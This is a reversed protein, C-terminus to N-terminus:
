KQSPAPRLYTTLGASVANAIQARTEPQSLAIEEDRNVIMGAELLVAPSRATALVVLDDFYHVGNSRDAFPKNEGPIPDAHYLSPEFGHRRLQEGIASACRLSMGPQTNKRSVFLSFGTFRDSYPREIGEHRWRELFQPPVSDHHISLFFTAGAALRTREALEGMEGEAGVLLTEFLANRLERDVQLALDLNFQFEPVGRASMAGPRSRSHGVDIAINAAFACWSWVVATVIAPLCTCMMNFLKLPHYRIGIVRGSPVLM